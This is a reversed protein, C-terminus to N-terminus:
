LDTEMFTYKMDWSYKCDRLSDFTLSICVQDISLQGLLKVESCTQKKVALLLM